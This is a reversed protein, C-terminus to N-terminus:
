QEDQKVGDHVFQSVRHSAYAAICSLSQPQEPTHTASKALVQLVGSPANIALKTGLVGRTVHAVVPM